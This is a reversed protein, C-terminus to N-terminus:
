RFFRFFVPSALRLAMRRKSCISGVSFPNSLFQALRSKGTLRNIMSQCINFGISIYIIFSIGSSINCVSDMVLAPLLYEPFKHSLSYVPFCRYICPLLPQRLYAQHFFFDEISGYFLFIRRISLQILFFHTPEITIKHSSSKSIRVNCISKHIDSKYM